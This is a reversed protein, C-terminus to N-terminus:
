RWVKPQKFHRRYGLVSGNAKLSDRTLVTNEVTEMESNWEERKFPIVQAIPLGADLITRGEGAVWIFAM